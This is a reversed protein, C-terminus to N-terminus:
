INMINYAYYYLNSFLTFGKYFVLIFEKSDTSDACIDKSIKQISLGAKENTM